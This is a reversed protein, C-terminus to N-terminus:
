FKGAINKASIIAGEMYGGYQTSNETGSFFLRDNM